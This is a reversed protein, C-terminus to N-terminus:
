VSGGTTTTSGPPPLWGDCLRGCPELRLERDDSVGHLLSDCTHVPLPRVLRHSCTVARVVAELRAWTLSDTPPDDSVKPRLLAALIPAACLVLGAGPAPAQSRAQPPGQHLDRPAEVLSKPHPDADTTKPPPPSVCKRLPNQIKGGGEPPPPPPSICLGGQSSREM